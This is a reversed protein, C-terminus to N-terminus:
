HPLPPPADQEVPPEPKSQRNGRPGPETRDLRAIEERNAKDEASTTDGSSSNDDPM